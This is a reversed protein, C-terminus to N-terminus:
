WMPSGDKDLHPDILYVVEFTETETLVVKEIITAKFRKKSIPDKWPNDGFNDFQKKTIQGLVEVRDEKLVGILDLNNKIAVVGVVGARCIIEYYKYYKM